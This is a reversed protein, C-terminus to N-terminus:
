AVSKSHRETEVDYGWPSFSKAASLLKETLLAVFLKGYLWAKASEEDHKPLHGLNAIQKFRKFVLEIQWRLRYCELVQEPSFSEVPFTTFVMVYEAYVLTEEQLTSGNKSAKRRLKRTAQAIAARTKRIVCLRGAVPKQEQTGPILVSWSRVENTKQVTKLAAILDMAQGSVDFIRLGHPNLRVTLFAGAAASAHISGHTSYGRDVLVLEGPRLPFHVLSEGTGIGETPTLKFYDCTLSPWQLSYHIRWLGGTKGPEKVNTADILRLNVADPRTQEATFGREVFLARCLRYLWEKSKQLRKLLAVDSLHALNAEKARVATERLSYGSALHILLTRLLNVESKDQRLGKLALTEHAADRWGRPFFSSLLEWDEDMINTEIM